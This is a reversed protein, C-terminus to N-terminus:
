ILDEKLIKKAIRLLKIEVCTKCVTQWNQLIGGPIVSFRQICYILKLFTVDKFCHSMQAM